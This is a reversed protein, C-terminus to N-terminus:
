AGDLYLMNISQERHPSFQSLKHGDSPSVSANARSRERAGCLDFLFSEDFDPGHVDHGRVVACQRRFVHEWLRNVRSCDRLRTRLM